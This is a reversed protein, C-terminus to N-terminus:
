ERERDKQDIQQQQTRGRQYQVLGDGDIWGKLNGDMWRDTWAEMWRDM